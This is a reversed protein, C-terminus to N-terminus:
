AHSRRQLVYYRLAKFLSVRIEERLHTRYWPSRLSQTKLTYTHIM